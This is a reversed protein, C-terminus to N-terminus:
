SAEGLRWDPATPHLPAVQNVMAAQEAELAEVRKKAAYWDGCLKVQAAYLAREVERAAALSMIPVQAPSTM